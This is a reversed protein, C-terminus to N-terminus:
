YIKEIEEAISYASVFKKLDRENRLLMIDEFKGTRTDVFGAVQEGTCISCKIVPRKETKDYTKNEKKRFISM